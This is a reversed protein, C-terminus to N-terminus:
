AKTTPHTFADVVTKQVVVDKQAFQLEYKALTRASAICSGVARGTQAPDSTNPTLITSGACLTRASPVMDACNLGNYQEQAIAVPTVLNASPIHVVVRTIM